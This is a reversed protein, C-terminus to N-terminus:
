LPPSHLSVLLELVHHIGSLLCLFRYPSIWILEKVWSSLEGRVVAGGSGRSSVKRRHEFSSYLNSVGVVASTFAFGSLNPYARHLCCVRHSIHMVAKFKSAKFSLLYSALFNSQTTEHCLRAVASQGSPEVMRSKIKIESREWPFMFYQTKIHKRPM